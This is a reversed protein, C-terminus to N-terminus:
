DEEISLLDFETEWNVPDIRIGTIRYSKVFIEEGDQDNYPVRVVDNLELMPLMPARLRFSSRPEKFLEYYRICISNAINVNDSTLLNGGSITLEREGYKDISNPSSEGETNPSIIETFEGFEAKVINYLRGLGLDYDMIEIVSVSDQFIFAPTGSKSRQIFFFQGLGDFGFQYGSIKALEVLADWCSLGTFDALEISVSTKTWSLTISDVEPTENQNSGLAVRYKLYRDTTSQIQGGPGIVKYSEWTSDDPSSSTFIVIEGETKLDASYTLLNFDTVTGGGSECDISNSDYTGAKAYDGAPHCVTLDKTSDGPELIRRVTYTDGESFYQSLDVERYHTTYITGFSIVSSWVVTSGDIVEIKGQNGFPSSGKFDAEIRTYTQSPEMTGTNDVNINSAGSNSYESSDSIDTTSCFDALRLKDSDCEINEYTGGTWESCEDETHYEIAGEFVVPDIEYSTIGAHSLLYEVLEEIKKDRYWYIYDAYVNQGSTPAVEFQIQGPNDYDSLNSISYEVGREKKTTDIRVEDVRGVGRKSTEFTKVSGDTGYKIIRYTDGDRIGDSYLNDGTCELRTATNGDIDYENGAGDGSIMRLIYGSWEDATWSKTSDYFYGNTDNSPDSTAEGSEYRAYLEENTVVNSAEEASLNKLISEKGKVQISVEDSAPRYVINEIVGDFVYLYNDKSDGTESPDFGPYNYVGKDIYAGIIIKIESKYPVYDSGSRSWISSSYGKDWINDSNDAVINLNSVKWENLGETDLKWNIPDISIIYNELDIASDLTGDEQRRKLEVRAFYHVSEKPFEQILSDDIDRM